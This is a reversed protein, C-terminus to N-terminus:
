QRGGLLDEGSPPVVVGAGGLDGQLGAHGFAGEVIVEGRPLVEKQTKEVLPPADEGLTDAFSRAGEVVGVVLELGDEGGGHFEEDGVLGQCLDKKEFGAGPLTKVLLRTATRSASKRSRM